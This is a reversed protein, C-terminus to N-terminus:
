RREMIHDTTIWDVISQRLRIADLLGVSLHPIHKTMENGKLVIQM